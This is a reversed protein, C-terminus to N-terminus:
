NEKPKFWDEEIVKEELPEEVYVDEQAMADLAFELILAQEILDKNM